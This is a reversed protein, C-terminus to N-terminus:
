KIIKFTSLVWLAEQESINYQRFVTVIHVTYLKGNELFYYADAGSMGPSYIGNKNNIVIWKEGLVPDPQFSNMRTNEIDIYFLPNMSGEPVGSPYLVDPTISYHFSNTEKNSQFEENKKWKKPFTFEFVENKYTMMEVGAFSAPKNVSIIKTETQNITNTASSQVSKNGRLFNWATSGLIIALLIVIISIIKKDM